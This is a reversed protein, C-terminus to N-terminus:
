ELLELYNNIYDYKRLEEINSIKNINDKITNYANLHKNLFNIMEEKGDRIGISIDIQRTIPYTEYIKNENYLKLESICDEKYKKIDIDEVFRYEGDYFIIEKKTSKVILNDQQKIRVINDLVEKKEDITFIKNNLTDFIYYIM